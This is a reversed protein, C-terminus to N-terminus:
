RQILYHIDEAAYCMSRVEGCSSKAYDLFKIFEATSGREFGEAINNM